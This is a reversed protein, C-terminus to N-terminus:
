AARRERWALAAGTWTEANLKRMIMLKQAKVTAVKSGRVLAIDATRLAALEL